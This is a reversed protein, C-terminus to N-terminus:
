RNPQKGSAHPVMSAIVTTGLIILGGLLTRGTPIEGLLILAFLIGYVPELSAIISALQTKLHSLGKIFLAHAGATCFVGLVLLLAFDRIQLDREQFLALPIFVLTAFINQYAAIVLPPYKKVYKRNLLSLIAFTFGAIVGWFAGQTISNSIDFTPVVLFVGVVVGIATLIDFLRIKENFLYPELFTVFVPFTSYTLLGVAVTSLQISHFFALWHLALLAGLGGFMWFDKKSDVKLSLRFFRLVVCLVISAFFTRGLVILLPSLSLFKGFLGSLGFLLVSLHIELLGSTKTFVKM